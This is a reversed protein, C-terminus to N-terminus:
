RALRHPSPTMPHFMMPLRASYQQFFGLLLRRLLVRLQSVLRIRRSLDMYDRQYGMEHSWRMQSGFVVWGEVIGSAAKMSEYLVSLARSVDM